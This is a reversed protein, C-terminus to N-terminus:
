PSTSSNFASIDGDAERALRETLRRITAELTPRHSLQSLESWSTDKLVPMNSVVDVEIHPLM